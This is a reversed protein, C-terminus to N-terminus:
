TFLKLLLAMVLAMVGTFFSPAPNHIRYLVSAFAFPPIPLLLAEWWPKAGFGLALEIVLGAVALLRIFLRVLSSMFLPPIDAPNFENVYTAALQIMGFGFFVLFSVRSPRWPVWVFWYLCALALFLLVGKRVTVDFPQKVAQESAHGSM